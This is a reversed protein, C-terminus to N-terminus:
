RVPLPEIVELGSGLNIEDLRARLRDLHWVRVGREGDLLVFLRVGDPHFALWRVAGPLRLSLLEGLGGGDCRWLRVTRDRSGTALLRNGAFAVAEVRDGHAAVRAAVSGDPVRLLVLEGADSGAAALTEDPNLAVARITTEAVRPLAVPTADAARLLYVCGSASGAVVWERGAAVAIPYSSTGLVRVIQSSWAGVQKGEPMERVQVDDGVAAWLRGDPGYALGRVDPDDPLPLTREGRDDWFALSSPRSVALLRGTPPFALLHRRLPDHGAFPESRAAVRVPHDAV